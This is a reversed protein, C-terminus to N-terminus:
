EGASQQTSGFLESWRGGSERNVIEVLSQQGSHSHQGSQREHQVSVVALTLALFSTQGDQGSQGQSRNLLTWPD